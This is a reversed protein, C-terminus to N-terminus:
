PAIVFNEVEIWRNDYGGYITYAGPRVTRGENTNGISLDFYQHKTAGPGFHTIGADLARESNGIAGSPGFLKYFFTRKLASPDLTVVVPYPKPNHATVIITFVGGDVSSNPREPVVSVSLELVDSSVRQVMPDIPPAPGADSRCTPGCSVVGACRELFFARSHGRPERILAHLMEHRVLEGVLTGSGALVIRNSVPAWYGAADEGNSDVVDSGPVQYWSVNSMQGRLGSCSETVSWWRSYVSPPEFTEARRDLIPDAISTCAAACFATAVAQGFRSFASTISKRTRM